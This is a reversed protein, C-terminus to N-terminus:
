SQNRKYKLPHRCLKYIEVRDIFVSAFMGFIALPLFLFPSLIMLPVGVVLGLLIAKGVKISKNLLLGLKFLAEILLESWNTLFFKTILNTFIVGAHFGFYGLSFVFFLPILCTIGLIGAMVDMTKDYVKYIKHWM